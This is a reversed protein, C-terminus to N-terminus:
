LTTGDPMPVSLAEASKARALAKEKAEAYAQAIKPLHREYAEEERARRGEDSLSEDAAIARYREAVHESWRDGSRWAARVDSDEVGDRLNEYTPNLAETM